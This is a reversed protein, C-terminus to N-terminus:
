GRDAGRFLVVLVVIVLFAFVLFVGVFALFCGARVAASDNGGGFRM